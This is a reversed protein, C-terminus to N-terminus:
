ASGSVRLLAVFHKLFAVCNRTVYWNLNDFLICPVAHNQPVNPPWDGLGSLISGLNGKNCNEPRERKQKGMTGQINRKNYIISSAILYYHM